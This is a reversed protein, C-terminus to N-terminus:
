CCVNKSGALLLSVRSLKPMLLPEFIQERPFAKYWPVQESGHAHHRDWGSHARFSGSARQPQEPVYGGPNTSRPATMWSFRFKGAHDSPSSLMVM